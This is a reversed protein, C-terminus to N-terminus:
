CSYAQRRRANYVRTVLGRNAHLALLLELTLVKAKRLPPSDTDKLWAGRAPALAARVQRYVATNRECYAMILLHYSDNFLRSKALHVLDNGYPAVIEVAMRKAQLISLRGPTITPMRTASDGRSRWHYLPQPIFAFRQCRTLARMLWTEDEGVALSTDFATYSGEQFICDRRFLKNWLSTFYGNRTMCWFLADHVSSAKAPATGQRLPKSDPDPLYEYYGCMAVDAEQSVMAQALKQYMGSDLWDDADVFGIWDGHAAELGCNRASSVGGNKKHFVRFRADQAAFADCITGSEDTSGDDVLIFEMPAYAQAALSQLCQPLYKAVNYVPVIVSITEM